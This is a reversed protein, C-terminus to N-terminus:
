YEGIKRCKENNRREEQMLEDEKGYDEDNNM